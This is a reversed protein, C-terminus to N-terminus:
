PVHIIVINLHYFLFITLHGVKLGQPVVQIQVHLFFRAQQGAEPVLQCCEAGLCLDFLDITIQFCVYQREREMIHLGIEYM